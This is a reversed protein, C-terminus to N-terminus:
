SIKLGGFNGSSMLILVTKQDLPSSILRQVPQTDNIIELDQRDFANKVEAETLPELNRQKVTEPNIYIIGRDALELSDKYQDIFKKNLSSYTHLELCAIIKHQSYLEKIAAISASVKTPSHAYDSYIISGNPNDLKQLRKDVGRFSQIAEYFQHDKIGIRNLLTKAGSINQINHKGFIHIPIKHAGDVLYIHDQEIEYPHTKYSLKVVALREKSCIIDVMPDEENYVLSGAKPTSDAFIDFQHTYEEENPFANIHDWAIGSILGIHHHYNLFKPLKDEPSSPYEDGEIVIIPADSLKVTQEIGTVMAGIVYDFKREFYNLVHIIIATITTKGHSGSIVIRQKDKCNEYIFEPFSYIKLGLEKAKELEPNDNNAHMGLIVADLEKTITEPQWGHSDSIIGANRLITKAPDFIEDDSGSVSFGSKKLSIALQHMVSGGIAIFHISHNSKM